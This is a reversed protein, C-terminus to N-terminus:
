RLGREIQRYLAAVPQQPLEFTSIRNSSSRTVRNETM